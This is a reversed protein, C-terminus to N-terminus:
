PNILLVQTKSRSSENAIEILLVTGSSFDRSTIGKSMIKEPSGTGENRGKREGTNFPTINKVPDLDRLSPWLHM